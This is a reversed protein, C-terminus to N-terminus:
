RWQAAARAVAAVMVPLAMGVTRATRGMPETEAMKVMEAEVEAAVQGAVKDTPARPSATAVMPAPPGTPERLVMREMPGMGGMPEQAESRVKFGTEVTPVPAPVTATAAWSLAMAAAAVRDVSCIISRWTASLRELCGLGLRQARLPEAAWRALRLRSRPM